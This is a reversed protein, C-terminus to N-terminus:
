NGQQYDNSNRPLKKKSSGNDVNVLFYPLCQNAGHVIWEVFSEKVKETSERLFSPLNPTVPPMTGQMHAPRQM